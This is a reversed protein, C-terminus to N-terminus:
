ARPDLRNIRQTDPHKLREVRKQRSYGNKADALDPPPILSVLHANTHTYM